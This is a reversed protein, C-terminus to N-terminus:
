SQILALSQIWYNTRAESDFRIEISNSGDILHETIDFQERIYNGNNPNHKAVVVNGNVIITIPSDTLNGGVVSSLHFMDLLYKKTADRHELAANVRIYSRGPYHMIWSSGYYSNYYTGPGTEIQAGVSHIESNKFDITCIPLQADAVLGYSDNARAQVNEVIEEQELNAIPQNSIDM